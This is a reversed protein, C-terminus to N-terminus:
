PAKQSSELSDMTIGSIRDGYMDSFAFVAAEKIKYFSSKSLCMIDAMEYGTLNNIYYGILAAQHGPEPLSNFMLRANERNELLRVRRKQINSLIDDLRIIRDSTDTDAGGDVRTKSYDIAGLSSCERFAAREESTCVALRGEIQKIYNLYEDVTM